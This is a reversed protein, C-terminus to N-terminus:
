LYQLCRLQRPGVCQEYARWGESGFALPKKPLGRAVLLQVCEFRGGTVAGILMDDRLPCGHEMVYALCDAHGVHVLIGMLRTIAVALLLNIM